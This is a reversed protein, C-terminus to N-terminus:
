VSVIHGHGRLNRKLDEETQDMPINDIEVQVTREGLPKTAERSIAEKAQSLPVDSTLIM